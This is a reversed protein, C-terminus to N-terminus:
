EGREDREWQLFMDEDELHADRAGTAIRDLREAEEEPETPKAKANLIRRVVPTRGTIAAWERRTPQALGKPRRERRM